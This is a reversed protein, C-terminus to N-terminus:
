TSKWLITLRKFVKKLKRPNKYCLAYCNAELNFHEREIQSPVMKLGVCCHWPVDCPVHFM